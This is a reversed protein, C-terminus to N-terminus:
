ESEHPITGTGTPPCVGPQNTTTTVTTSSSETTTEFTTTPWTTMTSTANESTTTPPSLDGCDVDEEPRCELLIPDFLFGEVCEYETAEGDLCVYYKACDEAIYFIDVIHVIPQIKQM